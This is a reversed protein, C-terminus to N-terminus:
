AGDELCRFFPRTGCPVTRDAIGGTYLNYLIPEGTGPDTQPFQAWVEHLDLWFVAEPETVVVGLRDQISRRVVALVSSDNHKPHGAWMMIVPVGDRRVGAIVTVAAGDDRRAYEIAYVSVNLEPDFYPTIDVWVLPGLVDEAAAKSLALAADAEIEAAAGSAPQATAASM